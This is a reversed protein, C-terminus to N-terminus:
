AMNAIAASVIRTKVRMARKRAALVGIASRMMLFALVLFAVIKTAESRAKMNM